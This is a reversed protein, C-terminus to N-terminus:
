GRSDLPYTWCIFEFGKRELIPRSMPAADVALYEYGREQAELCREHLLMSYFEGAGGSLFCLAAAFTLLIPTPRCTRGAPAWPSSGPTPWM